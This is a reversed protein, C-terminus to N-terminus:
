LSAARHAESYMEPDPRFAGAEAMSLHAMSPGVILHDELFLGIVHAVRDIEATLAMDAETPRVDNSPHNHAVVFRDCGAMLVVAMIAEVPVEVSGFNGVAVESVTRVHQVGDYAIVWFREQASRCLGWDRLIGAMHESDVPLAVEEDVVLELRAFQYIV